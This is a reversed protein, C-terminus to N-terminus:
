RSMQQSPVAQAMWPLQLMGQKDTDGARRVQQYQIHVFARLATRPEGAQCTASSQSCSGAPQGGQQQMGAKSLHQAMEMAM